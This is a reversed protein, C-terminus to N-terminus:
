VPGLPWPPQKMIVIPNKPYLLPYSLILYGLTTTLAETIEKQDQGGTDPAEARCGQSADLADRPGSVNHSPRQAGLLVYSGTFNLLNAM